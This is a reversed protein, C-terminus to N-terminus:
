AGKRRGIKPWLRAYWQLGHPTRGNQPVKILVTTMARALMTASALM